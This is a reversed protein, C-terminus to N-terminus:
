PGVGELLEVFGPFSTGILRTDDITVGDVSALGAVAMSMAIRHDLHTAVEERGTGRLAKGGTGHIVLGDDLEEVRAGAAALATAMVALRDCEKVRLEHLDSTRTTGTALAAAVFLVPFEDIMSPVFAADVDIGTLQSHRVRVDAVPEGGVDRRNQLEISGGMAQLVDILGARTPNIGVNGITLDSGEVLLAAVIFFAASSPDGPVTIDQPVLDVAGRIAIHREGDQEAVTLDAAFGQLMRETHDRTAVPEVVTTIGPTNMGALLVASKVQASAVPLRYAIPVAPLSGQITLPLTGGTGADIQAGMQALPEIVRGMPRASLS